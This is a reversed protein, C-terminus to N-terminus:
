ESHHDRPQDKPAHMDHGAKGMDDCCCKEKMAAHQEHNMPMAQGQPMPAPAPQAAAAVAAAILTMM